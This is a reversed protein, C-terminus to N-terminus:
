ATRPTESFQERVRVQWTLLYGPLGDAIDISDSWTAHDLWGRQVVTPQGLKIGYRASRFLRALLPTATSKATIAKGPNAVLLAGQISVSYWDNVGNSIGGMEHAISMDSVGLVKLCPLMGVSDLATATSERLGTVATYQGAITALLADWDVSEAV